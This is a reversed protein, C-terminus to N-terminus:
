TVLQCQPTRRTAKIGHMIFEAAARPWWGTVVGAVSL